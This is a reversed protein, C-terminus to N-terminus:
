GRLFRAAPIFKAIFDIIEPWRSIIILAGIGLAVWNRAIFTKWPPVRPRMTGDAEVLYGLEAAVDARAKAKKKDHADLADSFLSPLRSEWLKWAKEIDALRESRIARDIDTASLKIARETGDIESWIRVLKEDDDAM